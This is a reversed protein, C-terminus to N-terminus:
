YFYSSRSDKKLFIATKANVGKVAFFRNTMWLSAFSRPLMFRRRLFLFRSPSNKNRAPTKLFLKNSSRKLLFYFNKKLLERMLSNTCDGGLAEAPLEILKNRNTVLSGGSGRYRMEFLVAKLGEPLESERFIFGNCHPERRFMRTTAIDDLAFRLIETVGVLFMM